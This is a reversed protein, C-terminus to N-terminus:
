KKLSRLSIRKDGVYNVDIGFATALGKLLVEPEGNPLTGTLKKELLAPDELLVEYGYSYKLIDLLDSLPTTDFVLEKSQWSTYVETNIAKTNLRASTFDYSAMEGPSISLAEKNSKPILQVSGETLVLQFKKERQEVNFKTGLVQVLMNGSEVEFKKGEYDSAHVVSFFAEGELKLKRSESEEWNGLIELHSNANLTVQSGDPLSINQIEGYTTQYQREKNSLLDPRLFVFLLLLVAAAAGGYAWLRQPSLATPTDMKEHINALLSDKKAPSLSSEKLTLNEVFSRAAEIEKKQAPHKHLWDEWFLHNEGAKVWNIFSEDQIFDETKFDQYGM